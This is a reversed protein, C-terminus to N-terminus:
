FIRPPNEDLSLLFLEELLLFLLQPSSNFSSVHLTVVLKNM